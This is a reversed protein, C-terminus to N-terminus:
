RDTRHNAGDEEGGGEAHQWRGIFRQPDEDAFKRLAHFQEVDAEWSQMPRAQNPLCVHKEIVSAGMEIAVCCESLGAAHDSWGTMSCEPGTTAWGRRAQFKVAALGTPAPYRTVCGMFCAGHIGPHIPRHQTALQWMASQWMDTVGTAIFVRQFQASGLRDLVASALGEENAEGSGIKIAELGLSAVEPVDAAHYVTTLFKTGAQECVVKLEAFREVSFEAQKFWDYQPDDPQLHKVRTHQFKVFTAGAEAFRWIFEKALSLDGGHNSSVEAILEVRSM